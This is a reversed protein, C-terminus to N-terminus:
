LPMRVPAYPGYLDLLRTRTSHLRHAIVSAVSLMVAQGLEPERACLERAQAADFETARVPSVAEAGLHWRYPEFLWSWGLLEGRGLTDIVARQSGPVRIDLAVVGSHMVWLRDAKDDEEFIREKAAFGVEHGLDELEQRHEPPLMGVFGKMTRM